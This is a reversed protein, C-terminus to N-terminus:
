PMPSGPVNLSWDYDMFTVKVPGNTKEMAQKLAGTAYRNVYGPIDDHFDDKYWKFIRSVTLRNGRLRTNAEKNIFARTADDLQTDLTEARYAEPLLPPCSKSACNIAFHIRPDNFQERLIKHEIESLTLTKGGIKVFRKKWPSSFISGLDKISELDPYKTLILKLTWANYMNIWFAMAEDGALSNVNFNEASALYANLKTEEKSLGDYDVGGGRVHAALLDGLPAHNYDEARATTVLALLLSLLLAVWLHRPPVPLTKAKVTARSPHQETRRNPFPPHHRMMCAEM